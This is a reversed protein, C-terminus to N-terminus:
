QRVEYGAERIAEQLEPLGVEIPDYKITVLGRELEVQVDRVGDLKRLADKVVSKCHSCSMGDVKFTVERPQNLGGEGCCHCGM